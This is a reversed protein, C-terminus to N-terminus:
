PKTSSATQLFSTGVEKLVVWTISFPNTVPTIQLEYAPSTASSDLRAVTGVLLAGPGPMFIGDGVLIPVTKPVTARFAGGGAGHLLVPIRNGGAWGYVTESPSSFLTIHSFSSSVARVVGLPTGGAGFAVMGVVVGADTGGQLLLTDYPAEPPRALVGLVIGASPLMAVDAIKEMLTRNQLALVANEDMLKQNHASLQVADQFGSAFSHVSSTVKEGWRFVPAFLSFFANPFLLRLCLLFLVVGLATVGASVGKPSLM